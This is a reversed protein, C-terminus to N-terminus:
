PDILSELVCLRAAVVGRLSDGSRDNGGDDENRDNGDDDDGGAGM